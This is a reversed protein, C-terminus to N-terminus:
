RKGLPPQRSSNTPLSRHRFTSAAIEYRPQGKITGTPLCWTAFNKERSCKKIAAKSRTWSLLTRIISTRRICSCIRIAACCSRATGRGFRTDGADSTPRNGPPLSFGMWYSIPSGRWGCSEILGTPTASSRKTFAASPTACNSRAKRKRKALNAEDIYKAESVVISLLLEGEETEEPSVIMLDAIQEERQGLWEAYDDLFYWGFYRDGTFEHRILFRSLVVGMLEYASRGRKAARLALDGSISNADDIMKDALRNFDEDSLDLNLQKLRSQLM